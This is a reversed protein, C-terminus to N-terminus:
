APTPAQYPSYDALELTSHHFSTFTSQYYFLLLNLISASYLHQLRVDFISTPSPHQLHINFSLFLLFHVDPLKLYSSESLLSTQTLPYFQRTFMGHSIHRPRSRYIQIETFTEFVARMYKDSDSSVIKRPSPSCTFTRMHLLIDPSYTPRLFYVTPSFVAAFPNALNVRTNSHITGSQKVMIDAQSIVQDLIDHILLRAVTRLSCVACYPYRQLASSFFLIFSLLFCLLLLPKFYDSARPLAKWFWAVRLLMSDSKRNWMTRIAFMTLNKPQPTFFSSQDSLAEM